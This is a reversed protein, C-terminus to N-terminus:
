VRFHDRDAARLVAQQDGCVVAVGSNEAIQRAIRARAEASLTIKKM